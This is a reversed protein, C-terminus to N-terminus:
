GEQMGLQKARELSTTLRDLIEEETNSRVTASNINRQYQDLARLSAASSMISSAANPDDSAREVRLGSQARRQAEDVGQSARQLSTIANISIGINSVRM